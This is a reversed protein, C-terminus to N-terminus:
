EQLRIVNLGKKKLERFEQLLGDSFPKQGALVRGLYAADVDIL